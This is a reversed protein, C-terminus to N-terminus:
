KCAATEVESDREFNITWDDSHGQLSKLYAINEGCDGEIRVTPSTAILEAIEDVVLIL